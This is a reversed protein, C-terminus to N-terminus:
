QFLAHELLPFLHQRHPHCRFIMYSSAWSPHLASTGMKKASPAPKTSSLKEVSRTPITEPHNLRM